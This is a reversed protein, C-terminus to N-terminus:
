SIMPLVGLSLALTVTFFSCHYVFGRHEGNVLVWYHFILLVDLNMLTLFLILSLMIPYGEASAWRRIMM